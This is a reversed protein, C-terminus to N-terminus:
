PTAGPNCVWEPDSHRQFVKVRWSAATAATADAGAGGTGGGGLGASFAGLGVQLGDASINLSWFGERRSGDVNVFRLGPQGANFGTYDPQGTQSYGDDLLPGNPLNGDQTLVLTYAGAATPTDILADWCFGTSFDAPGSGPAGCVHSSGSDLQLLQGANDFLALVPAFGSLAWSTSAVRLPGPGPLKLEIRAQEDDATFVGSLNVVAAQTASALLALTAIAALHALHGPHGPHVRQRYTLPKANM